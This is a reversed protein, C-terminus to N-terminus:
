KWNVFFVWLYILVSVVIALILAAMEAGSFLLLNVSTVM